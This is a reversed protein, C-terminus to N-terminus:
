QNLKRPPTVVPKEVTPVPVKPVSPEAIQPPEPNVLDQTKQGGITHMFNKEAGTKLTAPDRTSDVIEDLIKVAKDQMVKQPDIAPAPAPDAAAKDSIIELQEAHDLEIYPGNYSRIWGRVRVVKGRLSMPDIRLKAFDKRLGSPIGITFDTRWDSSFNVFIANRNQSVTYVKGQVIGFSNMRQAANVPTFMANMPLAWLGFKNDRAKQELALMATIQDKNEPTTRVRALGEALLTGQIWEDDTGCTFHAITQNMRNVRGVKESRTQYLTCKKGETLEALRKQTKPATENDDPIDLGTLAYIEGTDSLLSNPDIAKKIKVPSAIRAQKKIDLEFPIPKHDTAKPPAPATSVDDAAQSSASGFTLGLTLSLLLLLLGIKQM